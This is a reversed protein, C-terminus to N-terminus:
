FQLAVVLGYMSEVYIQALPNIQKQMDKNFISHIDTDIFLCDWSVLVNEGFCIIATRAKMDFNNGFVLRGSNIIKCGPTFYANGEFVIEGSNQFIM